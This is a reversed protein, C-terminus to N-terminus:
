TAQRAWSIIASCSCRRRRARVKWLGLVMTRPPRQFAFAVKTTIQDQPANKDAQRTTLLFCLNTTSCRTPWYKPDWAKFFAIIEEVYTAEDWDSPDKPEPCELVLNVLSEGRMVYAVAHGNPGIRSFIETNKGRVKM